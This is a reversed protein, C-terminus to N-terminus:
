KNYAPPSLAAPAPKAVPASPAPLKMEAVARELRAVRTKLAVEIASPRVKRQFWMRMFVKCSGGFLTNEGFHGSTGDGVIHCFSCVSYSSLASAYAASDKMSHGANMFSQLEDTINVADM